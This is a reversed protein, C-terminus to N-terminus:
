EKLQAMEQPTHKKGLKKNSDYGGFKKRFFQARKLYGKTKDEIEQMQEETLTAFSKAIAVNEELQEMSDCGVIVTDVATSLAYCLAEQATTIGDPDFIYGQAFVKMGIIGMGTAKAVPILTEQFSPEVLRDAANVACLVTDFPYRKALEILPAPEEHGTIGLNRVVGQEQMEKLAELAGGEGTVEDVEKMNVITHIQWLDLYSTKLRKLSKELLRLSGDRTRDNTKSALFVDRRVDQLAEGYFVESQGYMPATDFYNIGLERARRILDVQLTKNRPKELAGQGGLSLIGVDFRTRGLSRKPLINHIFPLDYVWSFKSLNLLSM